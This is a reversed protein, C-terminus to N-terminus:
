YQQKQPKKVEVVSTVIDTLKRKGFNSLRGLHYLRSIKWILESTNITSSLDKNNEKPEYDEIWSIAMGFHAEFQVNRNDNRKEWTSSCGFSRSSFSSSYSQQEEM